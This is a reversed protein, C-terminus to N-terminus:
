RSTPTSSRRRALSTPRNPRTEARAWAGAIAAQDVAFQLERKWMYWQAVDVGLGAGGILMPMGLAVILTANGSTCGTLGALKKRIFSRM